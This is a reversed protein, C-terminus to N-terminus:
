LFSAMVGALIILISCLCISIYYNGAHILAGIMLNIAIIGVRGIMSTVGSGFNRVHVQYIEQTM